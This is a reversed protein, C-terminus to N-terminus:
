ICSRLKILGQPLMYVAIHYRKFNVPDEEKQKYEWKAQMVETPREETRSRIRYKKGDQTYDREILVGGYISVSWTIVGM